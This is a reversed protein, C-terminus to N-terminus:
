NHPFYLTAYPEPVVSNPRYHINGEEPIIHYHPGNNRAPNEDWRFVAVNKVPDMWTILRGNTTGPRDVRILGFPNFDNPDPPFIVPTSSREADSAEDADSVSSTTAVTSAVVTPGAYIGLLTLIKRGVNAIWNTFGIAIAGGGGGSSADGRPIADAHTYFFQEKYKGSPDYYNISNNECYQNPNHSFIVGVKGLLIDANIFRGTEPDYYRSGLYYLGSEADYYYGRYRFPNIFAIHDPDTM